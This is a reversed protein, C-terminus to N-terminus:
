TRRRGAKIRPVISYILRVYEGTSGALRHMAAKEKGLLKFEMSIGKTMMHKEHATRPTWGEPESEVFSKTRGENRGGTASANIRAMILKYQKVVM